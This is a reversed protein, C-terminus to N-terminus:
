LGAGISGYNSLLSMGGEGEGGGGEEMSGEAGKEEESRGRKRRRGRWGGECVVVPRCDWRGGSHCLVTRGQEM